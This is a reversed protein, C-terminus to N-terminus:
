PRVPSTQGRPLSEFGQSHAAKRLALLEKEMEIQRWRWDSETGVYRLARLGAWANAAYYHLETVHLPDLASGQLEGILKLAHELDPASRRDNAGDVLCAAMAKATDIPLGLLSSM